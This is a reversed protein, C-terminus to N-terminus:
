EMRRRDRSRSIDRGLYRFYSKCGDLVSVPILEGTALCSMEVLPANERFKWSETKEAESFKGSVHLYGEYSNSKGSSRLRVFLTLSDFALLSFFLTVERKTCPDLFEKVCTVKGEFRGTLSRCRSPRASFPKKEAIGIFYHPWTQGLVRLGVASCMM